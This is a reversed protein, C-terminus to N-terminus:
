PRAAREQQYVPQDVEPLDQRQGVVQGLLYLATFDERDTDWTQTTAVEFFDDLLNAGLAPVRQWVIGKLESYADDLFEPDLQLASDVPLDWSVRYADLSGLIGSSHAVVHRLQWLDQLMKVQPNSFPKWGLLREYRDNVLEPNQWTGLSSALMSGASAQDRHALLSEVSVSAKNWNLLRDDYATTRDVIRAYLTKWTLEFSSLLVAYAAACLNHLHRRATGSYAEDPLRDNFYPAALTMDRGREVFFSGPSSELKEALRRDRRTGSESVRPADM